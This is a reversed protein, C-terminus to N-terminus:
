IVEYEESDATKITSEVGNVTYSTGNWDPTYTDQYAALDEKERGKRVMVTQGHCNEAWVNTVRPKRIPEIAEERICRWDNPEGLIRQLEYLGDFNFPTVFQVTRNDFDLLVQM